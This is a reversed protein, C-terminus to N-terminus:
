STPTLLSSRQTFLQAFASDPGSQETGAAPHGPVFYAGSPIHPGVDRIIATKVSGVDTVIAGPKLSSAMEAAVAGCAGVPVCLIVLDADKVADRAQEHITDALGIEGATDRTAQSRAQGAIHGTLRERRMVHSLSSGILGLGILAVREFMPSTM